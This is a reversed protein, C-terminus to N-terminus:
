AVWEGRNGAASLRGACYWTSNSLAHNGTLASLGAYGSGNHLGGRALWERTQSAPVAQYFGDRTYTSSSGGVSDPFFFGFGFAFKKIYQWSATTVEDYCQLGTEEYNTTISTSQNASTRVIYPEYYCYGDDDYSMQLIVDAVIEYAGNMFEIGQLKGPYKGSTNSTMSGDNGLVADTTGTDWHWTSIYTTGETASGYAGTDFTDDTDVYVAGYTTGDVEVSEIATVKVGANGSISYMYSSSRDTTSSYNGVLVNCGVELNAAESESILIRKVGTEAQKAYYQYNFNCCGQIIGDATLSAYKVYLMLMMWAIDCVSTGSYQSGNKASLTHLTNHSLWATPTVGSCSSMLGEETTYSMYKAHVVWQRFTGDVRVAEPVPEVNQAAVDSTASLGHIYTEDFESWFHYPSMQMVGVYVTEDTRKFGTTIGDIATIVPELTDADIEFNVDACAFLPLGAYDDQGEVTDTSAECTLDANDGGKTGYSTASIDPQYFETYGSWTDRTLSYWEDCLATLEASTADEAGNAIFWQRMVKKYTAATGDLSTVVGQSAVWNELADAIRKVTAEKPIPLEYAM